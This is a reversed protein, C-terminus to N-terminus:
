RPYGSSFSINGPHQRLISAGYQDHIHMKFKPLHALLCSERTWKSVNTAQNVTCIPPVRIANKLQCGYAPVQMQKKLDERFLVCSRKNCSVMAVPIRGQEGRRESTYKTQRTNKGTCVSECEREKEEIESVNSRSRARARAKWERRRLWDREKTSMCRQSIEIQQEVRLRRIWIYDALCLIARASKGVNRCTSCQDSAM